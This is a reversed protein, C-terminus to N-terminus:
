FSASLTFITYIVKYPDELYFNIRKDELTMGETWHIESKLVLNNHVLYNLGLALDDHIQMNQTGCGFILPVQSNLLRAFDVQTNLMWKNFFKVGLQGYAARYKLNDKFQLECIEGRAVWDDFDGDLSVHWCKFNQAHFTIGESVHARHAGSGIRLGTIPTNIWFGGGIGKNVKLNKALYAGSSQMMADTWLWQGAFLDLDLSWGAWDGFTISIVVGDVTESTYRGEQYFNFPARYFPLLIGVDRLENFIGMPLQVKGFKLSLGRATHYEYFAWDLRLEPELQMFPSEGLEKHSIQLVMTNEFNYDYRFQLALNRYDTNGDPTIGLIQHKNTFAFAQNLYGHITLNSQSFLRSVPILLICLTCVITIRM